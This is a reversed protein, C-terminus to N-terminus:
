LQGRKKLLISGVANMPIWLYSARTWIQESSKDYDTPLGEPVISTIGLKENKAQMVARGIHRAHAFVLPRSLGNEEMYEKAALWTGWTGVGQAKLNTVDGDVVHAMLNEGDPMADVLTRDAIMPRDNAYNLMLTALQHNPSAETTSTGFSHGVLCDEDTPNGTAEYVRM